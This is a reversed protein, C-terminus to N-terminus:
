KPPFPTLKSINNDHFSLSCFGDALPLFDGRTVLLLLVRSMAMQCSETSENEEEKIGWGGWEVGPGRGLNLQDRARTAGAVRPM